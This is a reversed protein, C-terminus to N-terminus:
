YEVDIRANHEDRIYYIYDLEPPEIGLNKLGTHIHGRHHTQHNFLHYLIHPLGLSYTTGKSDAYTITRKLDCGTVYGLIRGDEERHVRRLVDFDPYLVTDLPLWKWSKGEIRAMWLRDVLLVHNLTNAVSGFYLGCDRHVADPPLLACADYVKKNAWIQYRASDKFLDHSFPHGTEAAHAGM